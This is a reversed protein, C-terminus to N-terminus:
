NTAVNPDISKDIQKILKVAKLFKQKEEPTPKHKCADLDNVIAKLSDSVDSFLASFGNVEDQELCDSIRTSSFALDLVALQGVVDNLRDQIQTVELM